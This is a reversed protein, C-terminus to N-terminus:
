PIYNNFIRKEIVVTILNKLSVISMNEIFSTDYLIVNPVNFTAEYTISPKNKFTVEFGSDTTMNNIICDTEITLNRYVTGNYLIYQLKYTFDFKMKDKTKIIGNEFKFGNMMHSWLVIGEQSLNFDDNNITNFNDDTM